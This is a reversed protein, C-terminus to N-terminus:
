GFWKNSKKKGGKGCDIEKKRKDEIEDDLRKVVARRVVAVVAHRVQVGGDLMSGVPGNKEILLRKEAGDEEVSSQTTM